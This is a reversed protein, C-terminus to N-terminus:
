KNKEWSWRVSRVRPWRRRWACHFRRLKFVDVRRHVGQSTTQFVAPRNQRPQPLLGNTNFGKFRLHHIETEGLEFFRNLLMAIQGAYVFEGTIPEINPM